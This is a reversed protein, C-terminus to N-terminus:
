KTANRELARELPTVKLANTAESILSSTKESKIYTGYSVSAGGVRMLKCCESVYLQAKDYGLRDLILKYDATAEIATVFSPASFPNPNLVRRSKADLTDLADIENTALADRNKAALAKRKSRSLKHGSMISCDMYQM